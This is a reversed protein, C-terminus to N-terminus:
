TKARRRLGFLTILGSGLLFLTAPEPVFVQVEALSLYNDPRNPGYPDNLEVKVYRGPTDGLNITLSPKPWDKGDTFFNGSWVTLDQDDLVSVNFNTLRFGVDGGNPNATRNWIVIEDIEYMSRLDVMWWSPLPSEQTHTVSGSYINGNTNGDIAKHAGLDIYWAFTSSQTAVGGPAVNTKAQATTILALMLIGSLFLLKPFSRQKM